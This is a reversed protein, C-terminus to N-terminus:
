RPYAERRRDRRANDRGRDGEVTGAFAPPSVGGVIWDTREPQHRANFEDALIGYLHEDHCGGDYVNHERRVGERVFGVKEHVHVARPNNTRM